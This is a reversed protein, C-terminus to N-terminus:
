QMFEADSSRSGGASQSGASQSGASQSGATTGPLVQKAPTAVTLVAFGVVALAGLVLLLWSPLPTQWRVDGFFWVPADGGAGYRRLVTWLAVVQGVVFIGAVVARVVAQWRDRGVAALLAVGVLLPLQYRGRWWNAADEASLAEMVVPLLLAAVVALAAVALNERWGRRVAVVLVVLAVGWAVAVPLPLFAARDADFVGVAQHLYLGLQSLTGGVVEGLGADTGPNTNRGAGLSGAWLIWGVAVALAAAIGVLWGRGLRGLQRPSGGWAVVAVVAAALLVPGIPRALALAVAAVGTIHRAPAWEPARWLAVLGAFVGVGAAVEVGNPTAVGTLFAVSPTFAVLLGVPALGGVRRLAAAAATLLGAVMLVGLGRMWWVARATEDVLTPLGLVAHVWPPNTGQWTWAPVLETAGSLGPCDAPTVTQRRAFCARYEGGSALSAPADVVTLSSLRPLPAFGEAARRQQDQELRARDADDPTAGVIQGRVVGAAKVIHAAEDPGAFRPIALAWVSGLVVLLLFCQAVWRRGVREPPHDDGTTREGTM